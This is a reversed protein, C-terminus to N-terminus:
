PSLGKRERLLGALYAGYGSSTGSRHALTELQADGIYRMRWAIEEPASVKLGQRKEITQIFSSAEHLSEPTGADLWASGRSMMEMHLRGRRLYEENVDTIALRGRSSATLSTAIGVADRDYFYLGTVVCHSKPRAPKEEISLVRGAADLEAVGYPSPDSVRYGFVTAGNTAAAARRLQESLGTGYFINDGLIIACDRDGIFDRAIVIGDVVGNPAPQEAYSFELGWQEGDGLLAQFQPLDVPTTIILIDRIGALMLTSLPYYIMPKDYVPLLQKSVVITSPHLRTGTGGALIIGKRANV